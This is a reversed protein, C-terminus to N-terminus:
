KEHVVTPVSAESAIGCMNNKNRAMRIYGKDGWDSGWSNKVIWYDKGNEKGYGVALVGHNLWDTSCSKSEYIGSRYMQFDDEVDIAVSAPGFKGIMKRLEDENGSSVTRYGTVTARVKNPDYQCRGEVAKYAYDDESLMGYTEMYQFARNMDGGGCGHNGYERSCDVLQQESFRIPKGYKKMYQGEAAGSASFAWCSGCDGQDKVESVCGSERWDIADPVKGYNAELPKGKPVISSRMELLRKEKFEEFTMDTFQNLGLTYTVLGLDHRLNHEKIREVNREWIARRLSDEPGNYEKQHARKWHHWLEDNSALAGLTLLTIILLQMKVCCDM